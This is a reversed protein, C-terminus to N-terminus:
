FEVAFKLRARNRQFEALNLSVPNGVERGWVQTNWAAVMFMKPTLQVYLTPGLLVSLTGPELTLSVESIHPVAGVVRTVDKLVVTM